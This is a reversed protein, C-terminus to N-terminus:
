EAPKIQPKAFRLMRLEAPTFFGGTILISLYVLGVSAIAITLGLGRTAWATAGALLSGVVVITPPLVPAALRPLHRRLYAYQLIGYLGISLLTATAAGLHSYRPILLLNLLVNVGAMCINLLLDVRQRSAAVLLYAHYRVIGYPVFSWLLVQLTVAAAGFHSSYLLELIPKALITGCLATPLSIAFAYRMAVQGISQMRDRNNEFSAAMQPYLALCLSQPLVMALELIRWAASYLGVDEVTKLASLMFVDIRWYLTAFVGILLFTPAWGLLQRFINRDYDLRTSIGNRALLYAATACGIMKGVVACVLVTNLGYGAWLLAAATGVKVTYEIANVVAIHGMRETAILAAEQLAGITCPLVSLSVIALALRTDPDYQLFQSCGLMLFTLGVSAVTGLTMANHLIGPLAARNRAGERTVVTALGLPAIANIVYLYTFALTYRGLGEPGLFRSMALVLAVSLAPMVFRLTALVLTNRAVSGPNEKQESHAVPGIETPMATPRFNGFIATSGAGLM